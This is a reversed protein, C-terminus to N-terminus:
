SYLIQLGSMQGITIKHYSEINHMYIYIKSYLGLLIENSKFEIWRNLSDFNLIKYNSTLLYLNLKFLNM